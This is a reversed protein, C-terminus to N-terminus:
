FYKDGLSKRIEIWDEKSLSNLEETALPIQSKLKEMIRERKCPSCERPSLNKYPMNYAPNPYQNYGENCGQSGLAMFGTLIGALYRSTKM